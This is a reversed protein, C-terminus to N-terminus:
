CTIEELYRRQEAIAEQMAQLGPGGKTNRREACTSLQLATYIDEEFVESFSHMEEPTLDELACGKDLAYLVMKGIISHADRFPVGKGVLYDAADTANTFGQAAAKELIDKRFTLSGLMGRYLRLCLSVTDLADFVGEKDEQLDKNYALPLGKLTVLLQTLTGYVRGTKGRILEALDPNKKQPMISSGTSYTDDIAIYRYDDSNWLIIEECSRSMHMQILSLAGLLEILYDRDSVADMSNEAPRDFGLERATFDRDLPYTTGALAGAGLPCTNMRARLDVLHERDRRFMAFYAAFHHGVSVPQAKQLHTFGPMWTTAEAEVIGHITQLLACLEAQLADIQNRVYLKMDTAVQDNRSRGTHLKKGVEGIREILLAEVFSHVDEQDGEAVLTGEAAERLMQELADCLTRGEEETLIGVKQLMRAHALSGTLDEPLLRGDFSLSANAQQALPDTTGTFRGGWLQAM